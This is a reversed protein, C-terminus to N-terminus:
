EALRYTPKPYGPQFSALNLVEVYCNKDELKKIAQFFIQKLQDPNTEVRANVLVTAHDAIIDQNWDKKNAHEGSTYSIKQQHGVSQIFFKLHGVPLKQFSIADAMEDIFEYSRKIAAEKSHITVSADLWTLAAEGAAYKEYDIALSTFTKNSANEKTADLWKKVSTEDRSDQFLLKKNPYQSEFLSRIKLIENKTLKDCKNVILIGAEELQKNYIYQVAESIFSSRGELSSLLVAGDAFVSLVIEIEPDFRILPKVITAVLDACSGVAEAFIIDPHITADLHRIASYFQEYNCCFCGNRVENNPINLSNVFAADVLQSGQDNMIAGVSINDRLLTKAATAIATTKGSGLFGGVLCLRM